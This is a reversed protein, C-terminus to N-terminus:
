LNYDADEIMYMTIPLEKSAFITCRIYLLYFLSNLYM